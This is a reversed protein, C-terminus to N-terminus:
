PTAPLASGDKRLKIEGRHGKVAFEFTTDRTAVTIVRESRTVRGNHTQTNLANRVAAPLQAVPVSEEVELITGDGALLADRTMKGERSEVEYVTQGNEQESSYGRVVSHPYARAFADRVASPVESARLTREGESEAKSDDRHERPAAAAPRRSKEAPRAQAPLGRAAVLSVVLAVALKTHM